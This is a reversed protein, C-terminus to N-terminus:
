HYNNKSYFWLSGITNSYNLSCELLNYMSIVLDLDEADDM